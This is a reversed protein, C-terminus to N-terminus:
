RVSGSSPNTINPLNKLRRQKGPAARAELLERGADLSNTHTAWLTLEAGARKVQHFHFLSNPLVDYLYQRTVGIYDAAHTFGAFNV